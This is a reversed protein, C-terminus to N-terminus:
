IEKLGAITRKYVGAMSDAAEKRWEPRSPNLRELMKTRCQVAFPSMPDDCEFRLWRDILLAALVSQNGVTGIEVVTSVTASGQRKLDKSVGAYVEGVYDPVGPGELKKEEDDTNWFERAWTAAKTGPEQGNLATAVAPDGLGTHWDIVAVKEAQDLYEAVIAKLNRTSWEQQAGCYITGKPHTDQGGGMATLVEVKDNEELFRYFAAMVEDLVHESMERTFLLDYLEPYLKNSRVPEEFELYNRNLDVFNENGRSIWASGYPNHGHVLCVAVDDELSQPGGSTIWGLQGAAGCFYEQGHTGAVAFYVNPADRRGFWAVETSLREGEPGEFSPLTASEISGNNVPVLQEMWARGEAITEPFCHYRKIRDALKSATM